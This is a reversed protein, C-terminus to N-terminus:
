DQFARLHTACARLGTASHGPVAIDGCLLKFRTTRKEGDDHHDVDPHGLLDNSINSIAEPGGRFIPGGAINHTLM